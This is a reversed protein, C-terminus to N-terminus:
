SALYPSSGHSAPKVQELRAHLAANEAAVVDDGRRLQVVLRALRANELQLAEVDGRAHENVVAQLSCSYFLILAWARVVLMATSSPDSQAPKCKMSHRTSLAKIDILVPAIHCYRRCGPQHGRDADPAACTLAACIQALHPDQQLIRRGLPGYATSRLVAVRKGHAVVYTLVCALRVANRIRKASQLFRLTSVTEKVAGPASSVNGLIFTKANGGLSDQSSIAPHSSASPIRTLFCPVALSNRCVSGGGSSM